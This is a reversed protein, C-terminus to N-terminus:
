HFAYRLRIETGTGWLSWKQFPLPLPRGNKELLLYMMGDFLALASGQVMISKGYGKLKEKKNGEHRNAREMVYSGAVIYAVDLGANFLFLKESLAQERYTQSLSYKKSAAKRAKAYAWGALLLNVSGAYSNMRSFYKTEGKKSDMLAFGSSINAVSWGGLVLMGNQV